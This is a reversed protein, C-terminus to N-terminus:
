KLKDFEYNTIKLTMQFNINEKELLSKTPLDVDTFYESKEFFDKLSLLSERDKSIGSVVFSDGEKKIYIRDLNINSNINSSLYELFYSWKVFNSKIKLLDDIKRNIENIEQSYNSESKIISSGENIVQIFKLQISLKALLFIIAYISFLIVLIHLFKLISYYINKTKIEKKTREPIINIHIM